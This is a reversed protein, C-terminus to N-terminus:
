INKGNTNNREDLVYLVYDIRESGYKKLAEKMGFANIYNKIVKCACIDPSGDSWKLDEPVYM